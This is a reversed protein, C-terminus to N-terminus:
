RFAKGPNTKLYNRVREKTRTTLSNRQRQLYVLSASIRMLALIGNLSFEKAPFEEHVM